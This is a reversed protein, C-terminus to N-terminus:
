TWDQDGTFHTQRLTQLRIQVFQLAFLSEESMPFLTGPVAWSIIPRRMPTQATGPVHLFPATFSSVIGNVSDLVTSDM